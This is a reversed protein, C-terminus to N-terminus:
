VNFAGRVALFAGAALFLAVVITRGHDEILRQFADLAKQGTRPALRTAALPAWAPISCVAVLVVVLVIRGIMGVDTAAIEKAAVVVLALTTFNTAMSFIGFPFAAEPNGAMSFRPKGNSPRQPKPRPLPHDGLYHIALGIVILGAGLVLDLSASLTPETPLEIAHGLFVLVAVFVALTLVAGAAYHTAARRGGTGLLVTQETLMMPSVAGGLSLPLLLSLAAIV